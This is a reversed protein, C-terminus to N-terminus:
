REARLEAAYERAAEDDLAVKECAESFGDNELWNAAIDQLSAMEMDAFAGYYPAPKGNCYPEASVLEVEAAYDPEGGSDYSPGTAPAGKTYTFTIKAEVEAGLDPDGVAITALITHKSAM